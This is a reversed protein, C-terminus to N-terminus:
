PTGRTESVSPEATQTPTPEVTPTQTTTATSTRTSTRTSTSPEGSESTTTSSTATESETSTRRTSTPQSTQTRTTTYGPSYNCSARRAVATSMGLDRAYASTFCPIGSALSSDAAVAVWKGNEWKMVSFEDTQSVGIYAWKGDCVHVVVNDLDHFDSPKCGGVKKASKSSTTSTASAAQNTDQDNGGSFNMFGLIVVIALVFGGIAAAVIKWAESKAKPAQSSNGLGPMVYDAPEYAKAEDAQSDAGQSAFGPAKAEETKDGQSASGLLDSDRIVPIRDTDELSSDRQPKPSQASQPSQAGKFSGSNNQNSNDKDSLSWALNDSDEWSGEARNNEGNFEGHNSGNGKNSM